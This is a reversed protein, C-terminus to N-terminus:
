FEEAFKIIDQVLETAKVTGAQYYIDRKNGLEDLLINYRVFCNYTTVISKQITPDCIVATYFDENSINATNPYQEAIEECFSEFYFEQYHFEIAEIIEEVELQNKPLGRFIDNAFMINPESEGDFDFEESARDMVEYFREVSINQEAMLDQEIDIFKEDNIKM